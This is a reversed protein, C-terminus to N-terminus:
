ERREKQEVVIKLLHKLSRKDARASEFSITQALEDTTLANQIVFQKIHKKLKQANWPYLRLCEEVVNRFESSTIKRSNFGYISLSADELVERLPRRKKHLYENLLSMELRTVIREKQIHKWVAWLLMFIIAFIAPIVIQLLEEWTYRNLVAKYRFTWFIYDEYLILLLILNIALVYSHKHWIRCLASATSYNKKCRGEGCVAYTMSRGRQVGTSQFYKCRSSVTKGTLKGVLYILLFITNFLIFGTLAIVFVLRYQSAKSIGSFVSAEFTVGGSFTLVVASFITIVTISSMTNSEMKDDVQDLKQEAKITSTRVPEFDKELKKIKGDLEDLEEKKVGGLGRGTSDNQKDNFLKQFFNYRGIELRIHDALKNFKIATKQIRKHKDEDVQSERLQQDIYEKLTNLNEGLAVSEEFDKAFIGQLTNFIESYSHRYEGSYISVLRQFTNAVNDPNNAYDDRCLERIIDNLSEDNQAM